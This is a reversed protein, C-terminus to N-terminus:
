AQTQMIMCNNYINIRCLDTNMVKIIIIINKILLCMEHCGLVSCFLLVFCMFHKKLCMDSRTYSTDLVFSTVIMLRPM